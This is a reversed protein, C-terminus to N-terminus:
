IEYVEIISERQIKIKPGQIYQSYKKFKKVSCYYKYLTMIDIYINPIVILCLM